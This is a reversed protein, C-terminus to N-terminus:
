RDMSDILKILKMLDSLAAKGNESGRIELYEYEGEENSNPVELLADRPGDGSKTLNRINEMSANLLNPSRSYLEEYLSKLMELAYHKEIPEPRRRPRRDDTDTMEYRSKDALDERGVERLNHQVMALIEQWDEREM